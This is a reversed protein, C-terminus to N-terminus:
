FDLLRIHTKYDTSERYQKPHECENDPQGQDIWWRAGCYSCGFEVLTLGRAKIPLACLPIANHKKDSLHVQLQAYQSLPTGPMLTVKPNQRLFDRDDSMGKAEICNM